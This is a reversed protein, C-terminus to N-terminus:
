PRPSPNAQPRRSTRSTKRRSASRHSGAPQSSPNPSTTKEKMGPCTSCLDEPFRTEMAANRLLATLLDENDLHPSAARLAQYWGSWDLRSVSFNMNLSEPYLYLRKNAKPNWVRPTGPRRAINM